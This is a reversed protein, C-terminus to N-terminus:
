SYSRANNVQRELEFPRALIETAVMIPDPAIDVVRFATVRGGDAEPLEFDMRGLRELQLLDSNRVQQLLLRRIYKGAKKHASDLVRAAEHFEDVRDGLSVFHLIADFDKDDKPRIATESMWRSVSVEDALASGLDLLNVSVELLNSSSVAKRLRTKWLQQLERTRQAKEGLIRDALTIIYDGSGSTRLLVFMGPAMDAVKIRTVQEDEDAELDIVMASTDADLFVAEGGELLFLRAEINEDEQDLSAPSSRGFKKAIQSWNLSPLLIEEPELYKVEGETGPRGNVEEAETIPFSQPASDPVKESGVFVSEPKWNDTIWNYHVIQIERARPATFIYECERFWRQPGIVALTQYCTSGRLLSPVVVQIGSLVPSAALIEEVALILRSEKLLLAGERYRASLEALSDLLPNGHLESLGTLRNFIDQAAAKFNPYIFECNLLRKRLLELSEPQCVTPHNFPLTAACLYFRYRRLPRLFERWYDEQAAEGLSREFNKLALCFSRFESHKVRKRKIKVCSSCDYIASVDSLSIYTM